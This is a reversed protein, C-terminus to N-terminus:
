IRIDIHSEADNLERLSTPIDKLAHFQISYKSLIIQKKSYRLTSGENWQREQTFDLFQGLDANSM